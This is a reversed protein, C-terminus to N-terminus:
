VLDPQWRLVLQSAHRCALNPEASELRQLSSVQSSVSVTGAFVQKELCWVIRSAIRFQDIEALAVAQVFAALQRQLGLRLQEPEQVRFLSV